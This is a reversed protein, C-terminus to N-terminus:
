FHLVELKKKNRRIEKRRKKKEVRVELSRRRCKMKKKSM